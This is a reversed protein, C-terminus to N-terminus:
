KGSKGEVWVTKINTFELLGYRSLERGLGSKKVGGFPLRPDSSVVKNVFVMGANIDPILREADEPEAWVSSGLGYPTENAIKVAEDDTRFKKVIAVPGFIEEQYELDTRVITPPVINGSGGGLVEVQSTGSLADVQKLVTARQSSSSLPGLFTSSDMPDGVRVKSFEEKLKGYFEDYVDDQVIFRKSAICSQGNNQLRGFAANKAAFDLDASKMVIFPDSGGLEMVVKKLEKGAEAAIKQGVETSGTFAIGDIYKIASSATEGRSITSNFLPSDFIEKLMLSTGSVMSAHKLIVGNGSMMAPMAARVAQWTPFNWPEISMIVGLPDFRVHSDKAETKVYENELFKKSNEVLYDILLISKKVEAKSQSIPKGMERTMTTALEDLNKEFNPKLTNKFYNLREDIDKKWDYQAARIASVKNKIDELSDGEYTELVEETFPNVTRIEPM